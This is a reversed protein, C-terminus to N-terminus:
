RKALLRTLEPYNIKSNHRADVPIRRLIEIRALRAWSLREDLAAVDSGHLTRTGEVALLREGHHAVFAARHVFDFTMAVCEVTFPYILGSGDRVKASCRGMLWLRGTEDVCGADGTRHWIEGQCHVKTEVDGRGNLYGKLVHDGAVLIEGVEGVPLPDLSEVRRGWQDAVVRLRTEPIPRGALLGRGAQMAEWDHTSIENCAVHAIPEAETSGYIAVVNGSPAGKQLQRLLSPFVPAGGTYIKEFGALCDPQAALRAYFAPSGGTRTPRLRGIQRAVRSADISGPRSIKGDPLVSTVGSALNALVFIPLTTLDVEGERLEISTRLAEHQAVLFAHTRVAAKPEGTSGSTFTILAPDGSSCAPLDNEGCAVCPAPPTFVHPIRRLGGVFPRALQLQWGSVLGKPPLMACCANIHALGASPDLFTAVVGLRFIGLLAVYLEISMPVFVLVADGRGIGAAALRAAFGEASRELEAFSVKRDRGHRTAIIAARDPWREVNERLIAPITRM